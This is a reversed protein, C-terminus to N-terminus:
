VGTTRYRTFLIWVLVAFALVILLLLWWLWSGGGGSSPSHAQRRKTVHVGGVQVPPPSGTSAAGVAVTGAGAAGPAVVTAGGVTVTGGGGAGPTAGGAPTGPSGSGGGPSGAVPVAGTKIIINSFLFGKGLVAAQQLATPSGSARILLSDVTRSVMHLPDPSSEEDMTYYDEWSGGTVKLTGDIFVKVVDNSPGNNLVMSIEVTHPVTPDYTGLDHLVFNACSLCPATGIVGQVDYFSFQIGGAVHEFGVYSMRAGDGRDPSVQVKLGPQLAGTYSAVTFSADFFPQLTGVPFGGNDATTEGAANATRPTFVDDFCGSIQNNSMRFSKTGGINVVGQDITAGCDAGTWPTPTGQGRVSGVSYTSFDIPGVTDAPTVVVLASSAGPTSSTPGTPTTPSTTGTPSTTPTTTPTTTPSTTSTPGTSGSDSATGTPGTTSSAGLPAPTPSTGGADAFSAGAMPWVLAGVAVIAFLGPKRWASKLGARAM